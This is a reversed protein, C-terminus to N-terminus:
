RMKSLEGATLLNGVKIKSFFSAPINCNVQLGDTNIKIKPATLSDDHVKQYDKEILPELPRYIEPADPDRFKIKSCPM